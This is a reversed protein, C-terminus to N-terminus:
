IPVKESFKANHGVTVVEDDVRMRIDIVCGADMQQLEIRRALQDPLLLLWLTHARKFGGDHEVYDIGCHSFLVADFSAEPFPLSRADAVLLEIAPDDFRKRCAAIMEPAYDVGVYRRVRSALHHTTRGGGVGVDLLDMTSLRPALERVVAEEAAQLADRTAYWRVVDARTYVAHNRLDVAM